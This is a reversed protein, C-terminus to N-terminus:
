PAPPEKPVLAGLAAAISDAAREPDTPLPLGSAPGSRWEYTTGDWGVLYPGADRYTVRVRRLGAEEDLVVAAAVQPARRRVAAHLKEAPGFMDRM